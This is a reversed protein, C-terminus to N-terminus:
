HPLKAHRTLIELRRDRFLQEVRGNFFVASSVGGKRDSSQLRANEDVKAARLAM